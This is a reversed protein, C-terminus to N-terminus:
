GCARAWVLEECAKCDIEIPRGVVPVIGGRKFRQKCVDRVGAYIMAAEESPARYL